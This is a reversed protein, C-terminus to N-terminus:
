RRHGTSLTCQSVGRATSELAGACWMARHWRSMRDACPLMHVMEATFLSGRGARCVAWGFGFGKIGQWLVVRYHGGPWQSHNTMERWQHHHCSSWVGADVCRFTLLQWCFFNYFFTSSHTEFHHRWLPPPLNDSRKFNILTLLAIVEVRM